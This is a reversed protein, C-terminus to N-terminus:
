RDHPTENSPHFHGAAARLAQAFSTYVGQVSCALMLNLPLDFDEVEHRVYTEYLTPGRRAIESPIQAILPSDASQTYAWIPLGKADAYGVEFATGSDPEYGRFLNLNALVGDSQGILEKNAQAIWRALAKGHLGPPPRNDLPFLGELGLATCERRMMAGVLQADQRFVDFGALYLKKM